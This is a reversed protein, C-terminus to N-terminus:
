KHFQQSFITFIANKSIRQNLRWCVLIKSLDFKIKLPSLNKNLTNLNKKLTTLIKKRPHNIVWILKFNLFKLTNVFFFFILEPHDHSWGLYCTSGGTDNSFFQIGWWYLYRRTQNENSNENSLINEDSM